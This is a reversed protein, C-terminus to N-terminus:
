VGFRSAGHDQAELRWCQSIFTPQEYAVWDVTNELLVGSPSFCMADESSADLTATSPACLSHLDCLPNIAPRPM